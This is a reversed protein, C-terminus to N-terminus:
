LNIFYSYTQSHTHNDCCWLIHLFPLSLIAQSCRHFQTFRNSNRVGKQHNSEICTLVCVIHFFFCGLFRLACLIVFGEVYRHFNLSETAATTTTTISLTHQLFPQPFHLQKVNEESKKNTGHANKIRKEKKSPLEKQLISKM